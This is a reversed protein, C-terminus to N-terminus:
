VRGARAEAVGMNALVDARENGPDGNHGRVWTMTVKRVQYLADLAKWLEVNKVPDGGSTRWNKRRWGPLWETIGKIVYSSDTFVEIKAGAQVLKLTEIAATLEMKNNTTDHAGGFSESIM